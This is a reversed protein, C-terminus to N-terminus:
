SWFTSFSKVHASFVDLKEALQPYLKKVQSIAAMIDYGSVFVGKALDTFVEHTDLGAFQAAEDHLEALTIHSMTLDYETRMAICGSLAYADPTDFGTM